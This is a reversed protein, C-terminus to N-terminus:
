ADEAELTIIQKIELCRSDINVLLMFGIPYCFAYRYSCMKKLRAIDDDCGRRNTSKKMEMCILNVFGAHEDLGRKHVILDATIPSGDMKKVGSEKGNAGRNYEVDVVYERYESVQLANTLHMAFRACICRESLDNAILYTESHNFTELAKCVIEKMQEQQTNM